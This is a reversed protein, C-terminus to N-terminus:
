KNRCQYETGITKRNVSADAYMKGSIDYDGQKSISIREKCKWQRYGVSPVRWRHQVKADTRNDKVPNGNKTQLSPQSMCFMREM